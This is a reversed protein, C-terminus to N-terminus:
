RGLAAPSSRTDSMRLQWVIMAALLRRHSSLMWRSALTILGTAHFNSRAAILWSVFNTLTRDDPRDLRINFDGVVYIPEQHTAFRDLVTALEDFFLQQVSLNSMSGPQYVVVAQVM